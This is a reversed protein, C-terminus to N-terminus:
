RGSVEPRLWLHLTQTSEGPATLNVHGYGTAGAYRDTGGTIAIDIDEPPASTPSSTGNQWTVQGDPFLFTGRCQDSHPSPSTLTGGIQTCELMETGFPRGNRQITNIYLYQKGVGTQPNGNSLYTIQEAHATLRLVEYRDDSRQVGPSLPQQSASATNPAAAVSLVAAAVLGWKSVTHM